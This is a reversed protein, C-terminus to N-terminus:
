FLFGTNIFCFLSLYNYICLQYFVLKFVVKHNISYYFSFGPQYFNPDYDVAKKRALEADKEALNAMKVSMEAKIRANAM